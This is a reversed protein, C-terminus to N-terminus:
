KSTSLSCLLSCISITILRSPPCPIIRGLFIENVLDTILESMSSFSFRVLNGSSKKQNILLVRFDEICLCARLRYDIRKKQVNSVFDLQRNFLYSLSFIQGVLSSEKQIKANEVLKQRLLVSRDPLVTQGCAEPKWFSALISWKKANKILKQGSLIYVYSAESAINFLVKETIKLCRSYLSVPIVTSFVLWSLSSPLKNENKALAFVLSWKGEPLAIM